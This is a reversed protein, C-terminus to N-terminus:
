WKGSQWFMKRKVVTLWGRNTVSRWTVGDNEANFCFFMESGKFRWEDSVNASFMFFFIIGGHAFIKPQGHFIIFKIFYFFFGWGQFIGNEPVVTSNVAWTWFQVGVWPLINLTHNKIRPESDSNGVCQLIVPRLNHAM